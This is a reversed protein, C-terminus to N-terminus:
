QSLNMLSLFAEHRTSPQREPHTARAIAIADTGVHGLLVFQAKHLKILREHAPLDLQKRAQSGWFRQPPCINVGEYEFLFSANESDLRSVIQLFRCPRLLLFM